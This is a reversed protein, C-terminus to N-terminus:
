VRYVKVFGNQDPHQEKTKCKHICQQKENNIINQKNPKKNPKGNVQLDLLNLIFSMCVVSVLSHLSIISLLDIKISSLQCSTLRLVDSKM